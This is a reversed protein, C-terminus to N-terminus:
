RNAEIGYDAPELVAPVPEDRKGRIDNLVEKLYEPFLRPREAMPFHGTAKMEHASAGEGIADAAERAADPNTLYDYEGNMLYMPVQTADIDSATERYDHEMSYYYLDGKLVGNAGQEYLYLTERRAWEPSQPAMLGWTTYSIVDNANVHPHDLWQIYFGPTFLGAELGILARFRDPYWDGLELTITGGMSSGIFIPNDLELADAISVITDTFREATLDYQDAWWSESSPPISKGHRPLDYAIVRFNETIEDDNLIHRWQQNNCGATHQCLLPIGDKPGAAEYYIRHNVGDLEVTVYRGEIQDGSEHPRTTGATRPDAGTQVTRMLEIARQFARFNQFIKKHDGILDFYGDERKVATRYFSAFVENHHASPVEAVFEEWAGPEGIVGFSWSDNLGPTRIDTIEGNVMEILTQDDGIGIVFNENFADRGHLTMEPDDNVVDQYEDWWQDSALEYEPM